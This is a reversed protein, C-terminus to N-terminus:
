LSDDFEELILVIGEYCTCPDCIPCVDYGHYCEIPVPCNAAHYMRCDLEHQFVGAIKPEEDTM